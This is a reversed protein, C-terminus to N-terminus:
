PAGVTNTLTGLGEAAVEVVDGPRLWVPPDRRAGAGTPTGTLIIDGPVLTTFTSIYAILRAPPFTMRSTRDDQRLDGNVRTTLRIDALQAPDTLLTLTPGLAGSADWNKGQTVNFKGHRVWDRVTGENALTLGAIHNLADAEPIRRGPRGIILAIEGEYDFQPSEQPPTLPQGHGTFSRPFRIFLSPHSPPAAGDRYEAARDPYNVGVCIIKEPNPIPIDWCFSGPPHTPARGRAAAQVEALAGAEVVDRLTPWHPFDPTLDIVGFETEAGWLPRSPAEGPTRAGGV